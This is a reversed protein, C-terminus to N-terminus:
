DNLGLRYRVSNRSRSVVVCRKPTPSRRREPARVVADAESDSSSYDLQLMPLHRARSTLLSDLPDPLDYNPSSRTLPGSFGSDPQTQRTSADGATAVKNTGFQAGRGGM